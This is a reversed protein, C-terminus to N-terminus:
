VEPKENAVIACGDWGVVQELVVYERQKTRAMLAAYASADALCEFREVILPTSHKYTLAVYFITNM